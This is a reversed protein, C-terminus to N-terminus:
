CRTPPPRGLGCLSAKASWPALQELRELETDRGRGRLYQQAHAPAAPHGRPLPHVQRLSEDVCFEMFFRAVDVMCTAEDMVIMGGSGM